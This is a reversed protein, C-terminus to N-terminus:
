LELYLHDLDCRQIIIRTVLYDLDLIVKVFLIRPFHLINFVAIYLINQGCM